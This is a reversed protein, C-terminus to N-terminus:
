STLARNHEDTLSHFAQNLDGEGRERLGDVSGNYVLRGENIMVVRDAMAEVEQLIHTSLLITKTESLRRMTQRVGRIQNPDLGATPEDLILVDPEHLLAQSMGVRQKFGKSLKSIPKHLVTSLDCIDVVAAIRERKQDARMGRADAFFNLMANPTMEPYLPGNEPLYGLRQSGAIRDSSMKHGAIKAVGSSAAIYGTLMKMTTSKGAGNPGLFAVLEGENVTFSIDRAAAFPGYFKSLGIAQIM